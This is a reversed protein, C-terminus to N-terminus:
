APPHSLSISIADFLKKCNPAAQQVLAPSLLALLKPGHSTKNDFYNGKPSSRTANALGHKLDDKSIEEVKPNQKLADAKFNPGYFGQLAAKDAHFWSEMMEVMWFISTSIARDWGQRECLRQSLTGTDPSDSDILLINWADKHTKLASTFDKCVNSGAGGEILRFRCSRGRTAQERLSLFFREFGSKLSKGGEYYIRIETPRM